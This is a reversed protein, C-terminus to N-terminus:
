LQPFVALLEKLEQMDEYELTHAVYAFVRPLYGGYQPKNDRQILRMFVGIIRLNRAASLIRYGRELSALSYNAYHSFLIHKCNRVVEASVDRRADELLSVLDYLAPAIAADQFDIIGISLDSCWLLNDAHFDRLALALPLAELEKLYKVFINMLEKSFSKIAEPPLYKPVYWDLFVKIGELFVERGMQPVEIDIDLKSIKILIQIAKSYLDAEIQPSQLKLFSSFSNNGLDELLLLKNALNYALIQPAHLNNKCLFYDIKMFNQLAEPEASSDMLIYTGNNAFIRWYYRKSADGPISTIKYDRVNYSNLMEEISLVQEASLSLQSPELNNLNPSFTM